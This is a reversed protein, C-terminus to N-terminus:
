EESTEDSEGEEKAEADKDDTSTSVVPKGALDMSAGLWKKQIVDVVGDKTLTTLATGVAQRLATNTTACAMSYGSPQQLLAIIYAQVGSSSAAYSGVVADAAAFQVSGSSMAKFASALDNQIVVAEAGFENTATWSSVSSAQAAIKAGSAETPVTATPSSAFLAIATPLYADSKWLDTSSNSADVGMVLDVKKNKIAGAADTGVDVVTLNLGLQEAIAAAMDVDIGIYGDSQGALPPNTTDVGVTLTGATILNSADVQVEKKTPQFTDGSCGALVLGLCLACAVAAAVAAFRRIM